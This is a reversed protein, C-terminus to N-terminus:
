AGRAKRSIKWGLLLAAIATYKGSNGGPEAPTGPQAAGFAGTAGMGGSQPSSHSAVRAAGSIPGATDRWDDQGAVRLDAEADVNGDFWATVVWHQRLPESAGGPGARFRVPLTVNAITGDKRTRPALVAFHLHPGSSYGTNGSYGLLEGEAVAQGPEVAAGDPQLHAYMGLTGDPHQVVVYNASDRMSDDIRGEGTHQEMVDLVVGGRAAHVPTGAPMEFDIAYAQGEGAHTSLEGGHVQSVRFTRGHPFPLTYLRDAAPEADVAGPWTRCRGACASALGTGASTEAVKVRAKAPIVAVLPTGGTGDPYVQVSLVYPSPNAVIVEHGRVQVDLSIESLPSSGYACQAGLALVGLVTSRLVQTASLSPQM